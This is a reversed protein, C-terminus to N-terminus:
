LTIASSIGGRCNALRYSSNTARPSMMGDRVPRVVASSSLYVRISTGSSASGSAIRSSIRSSSRHDEEIGGREDGPYRPPRVDVRELLEHTLASRPGAGARDTQDLRDSRTVPQAGERPQHCRQKVIMVLDRDVFPHSIGCCIKRALNSGEIGDVDGTRLMESRLEGGQHGIVPPHALGSPRGAQRHHNRAQLLRSKGQAPRTEATPDLMVM